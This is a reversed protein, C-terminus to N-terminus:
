VKPNNAAANKLIAIYGIPYLFYRLYSFLGGKKQWSKIKIINERKKVNKLM